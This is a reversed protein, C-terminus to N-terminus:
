FVKITDQSKSELSSLTRCTFFFTVLIQLTECLSYLGLPLLLNGSTDLFGFSISLPRYVLASASCIAAAKKKGLILLMPSSVACSIAVTSPILLFIIPLVFESQSLLTIESSLWPGILAIPMSILVAVAFSNRTVDSFLTKKDKSIALLPVFISNISPIILSASNVALKNAMSYVVVYKADLYYTLMFVPIQQSVIDFLAPFALYKLSYSVKTKGYLFLNNYIKPGYYNKCYMHSRVLFIITPLSQVTLAYFYNVLIQSASHNRSLLITSLFFLSSILRSVSVLNNKGASSLLATFISNIAVLQSIVIILPVNKLSIGAIKTEDSYALSAFSISELLISCAFGILLTTAAIAIAKSRHQEQLILPEVRLSLLTGLVSSAALTLIFESLATDGSLRSIISFCFLLVVQVFASSVALHIGTFFNSRILRFLKNM